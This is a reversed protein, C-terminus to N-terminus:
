GAKSWPVKQVSGFMNKQGSPLFNFLEMNKPSIKWVWVMFPQGLGVGVVFFQSSGLGTLFNQGPGMM